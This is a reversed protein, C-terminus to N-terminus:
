SRSIFYVFLFFNGVLVIVQALSYLRIQKALRNLEVDHYDKGLLLEFRALMMRPADKVQQVSQHRYKEIYEFPGHFDETNVKQQYRKIFKKQPKISLYNLILITAFCTIFADLISM